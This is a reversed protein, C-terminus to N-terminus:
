INQRAGARLLEMASALAGDDFGASGSTATERVRSQRRSAREVSAAFLREGMIFRLRQQQEETLDKSFPPMALVDLAPYRAEISQRQRNGGERFTCASFGVVSLSIGLKLIAVGCDNSAPVLLCSRSLHVRRFRRRDRDLEM